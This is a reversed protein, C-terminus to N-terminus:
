RRKLKLSLNQSSKREDQHQFLGHAPVLFRINFRFHDAAAEGKKSGNQWPQVYKIVKQAAIAYIDDCINYVSYQMLTM